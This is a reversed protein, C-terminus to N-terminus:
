PRRPVIDRVRSLGRRGKAPEVPVHDVFLSLVRRQEATTGSRLQNILGALDTAEYTPLDALRGSADRVFEDLAEVAGDWDADNFRDTPDALRRSLARRQAALADLQDVLGAREAAYPDDDQYLGALTPSDLMEITADLVHRDLLDAAISVRGCGGTQPNCRYVREEYTDSLRRQVGYMGGDCATCRAIQTLLHRRVKRGLKRGRADLTAVVQRWVDVDLVPEWSGDYEIGNRVRLGALTPSRLMKGINFSRWTGGERTPVERRNLDDALDSLPWGTLVREALGQVVGAEEPHVVLTGDAVRYGYVPKGLHPVGREARRDNRERARTSAVRAEHEDIASKIQSLVREGGGKWIQGSRYSHVSAVGALDAQTLFKSWREVSRVFRSQEAAVGHVIHGAAVDDLYAEWEPRYADDDFGSESANVYYRVPLDPWQQAAYEGGLQCQDNVGEAKGRRDRSIRALVGVWQDANPRETVWWTEESDRRM